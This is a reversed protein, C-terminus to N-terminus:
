GDAGSGTVPVFAAGIARQCSTALRKRDDDVFAEPLFRVSARVSRLSALRLFHSLFGADGWWCVSNRAAPDGPETRYSLVAAHV